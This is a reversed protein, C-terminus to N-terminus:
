YKKVNTEFGKKRWFFYIALFVIFDWTYGVSIDNGAGLGLPFWKLSNPNIIRMAIKKILSYNVYFM